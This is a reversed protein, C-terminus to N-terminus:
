LGLMVKRRPKPELVNECALHCVKMLLMASHM